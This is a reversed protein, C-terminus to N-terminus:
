LQGGKTRLWVQGAGYLLDEPCLPAAVPCGMRDPLPWLRELRWECLLRLLSLLLSSGGHQRAGRSVPLQPCKQRM